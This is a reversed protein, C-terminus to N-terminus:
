AQPEPLQRELLEGVFGAQYDHDAMIRRPCRLPVLDLMAHEAVDRLVPAGHRQGAEEDDDCQDGVGRRFGTQLNGAPEIAVGICLADLDGVRFHRAEVYGAVREMWFPIVANRRSILVHLSLKQANGLDPGTNNGLGLKYERELNESAVSILGELKVAYAPMAEIFSALQRWLVPV